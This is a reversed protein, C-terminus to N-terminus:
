RKVITEDLGMITNNVMTMAAVAAPNLSQSVPYDGVALLRNAEEIKSQFKVRESEELSLLVDLMEESPKKGTCARFAYVIQEEKGSFDSIVKQALVRAAEVYQPDNFLVLAQLPTNTMQRRVLCNERSPADFLTMSPLPSSRRWFTYLGRRYVNEGKDQVYKKLVSFEGKEEWLGEPQYPKVSEGGIKASLLGSSALICDRIVEAQLRHSPGRSLLTNEPDRNREQISVNSSQRYTESCVVIKLLAKVDWGSEMFTVSLWDLLEPHTPIEGQSGFDETTKVIGRGFLMQWFRNVTVRATLPNKRDVLWTALGYRDPPLSDPFPFIAEPTGPNVQKGPADYVGRNLVHAPQLEPLDHMVMVSMATDRIANRKERLMKLGTRLRDFEPSATLLFHEILEEEEYEEEKESTGQYLLAAEIASIKRRYIKFEDLVGEGNFKQQYYRKGGIFLQGNNGPINQSLQDFTIEPKIKEGNVFIDIGRAKGSGNYTFTFHKWEGKTLVGPVRVEILNAPLAHALRISLIGDIIVVEYGPHNIVITYEEAYYPKLWFSLSFEDSRKFDLSENKIAVSHHATFKTGKGIKGDVQLLEGGASYLEGPSIDNIFRHDKLREFSLDVVLDKDLNVKPKEYLSPSLGSKLKDALNEQREIEHDLVLGISDLKNETLLVQPGSNGDNNGLGSENISNFFGFLQYYEEQSIPDNKHDHCRACQMTMGLFTTGVTETRDAAYEIRFEEPVIGGEGNVRNNRLFATALRQEKTARPFKDGAIQWIIFKDYSMNENYAKIVWDRWPWMVRLGDQSYGHSDAYRAVDLWELAMREGYRVSQLLKDVVKEYAGPNNDALFDDIEEITPPLGTLDLTVRRLLTERDAEKNPKWGKDELKKLVFLDITNKGWSLDKVVPVEPKEVPIFSWHPKYEAGQEIWKAIVAMEEQTLGPMKSDPPPMQKEPDTSIIRSFASSKSISGSVFAHGGSSLTKKLLGEETDLRLEAKMSNKDPGHCAFCRNSLIPKVHFNFDVKDPLAEEYQSYDYTHCSVLLFFVM